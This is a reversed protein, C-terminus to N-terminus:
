AHRGIFSIRKLYMDSCILLIEIMFLTSMEIKKMREIAAETTLPKAPDM